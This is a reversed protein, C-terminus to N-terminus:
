EDPDEVEGRFDFTSQVYRRIEDSTTSESNEGDEEEVVELLSLAYKIKPYVFDVSPLGTGVQWELTDRVQELIDIAKDLQLKM